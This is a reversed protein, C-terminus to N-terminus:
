KLIIKQELRETANELTLFYIGKGISSLDIRETHAGNVTLVDTYVTQGLMNRVTLNYIASKEVAINIKFQGNNPNPVVDFVESKSNNLDDVSTQIPLGAINLRIVPQFKTTNSTAIVLKPSSNSHFILSSANPQVLSTSIDDVVEFFIENSANSGSLVEWGVVYAGSDLGGFGATDLPLTLFTNTDSAQVTYLDGFIVLGKGSTNNFDEPLWADRVNLTDEYFVWVSPSITIGINGTDNTVYFSISTPIVKNGQSRSEVIYTTGCADGDNGGNSRNTFIATPGIGNAIDFDGDDRAYVSDTTTFTRIQSEDGSIQEASDAVVRFDVRFDGQTLPSFTLDNELLTDTAPFPDLDTNAVFESQSYRHENVFTGNLNNIRTVDIEMKASYATDWGNNLIVGSFTIPPFLDYPIQDYLPSIQYNDPNFLLDAATIEIDNRPGEVIAVDDLMWFYRINRNARFRLFMTDSNAVTESVNITVFEVPNNIPANAFNFPNGRDVADATDWNISDISVELLYDSAFLCCKSLYQQFSVFVSKRPSIAIPGSTVFTNMTSIVNPSNYFDSPLSLFGNDATTSAIVPTNGTRTGARYITDWQWAFTNNNENTIEWGAPLGGDFDFYVLTDGLAKNSYKNKNKSIYDAVHKSSKASLGINKQDQLFTDSSQSFVTGMLLTFCILLYNKKM